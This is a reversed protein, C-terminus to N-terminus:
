LLSLLLGSGIGVLLLVAAVLAVITWAPTGKHIEFVVRAREGRDTEITVVAASVQHPVDARDIQVEIEQERLAPDLRTPHIGLWPENGSVTGGMRGDGGNRISITAVTIGRSLRIRRVPDGEIELRTIEGLPTEGDAVDPSPDPYRERVPPATASLDPRQARTRAPPGTRAAAGDYTRRAVENSLVKRALDLRTRMFAAEHPPAGDLEATKRQWAATIDDDTAGHTVGLLGYLDLADPPPPPTPTGGPTEIAIGVERGVRYLVERFTRESVGLETANRRLYDEQDANLSGSALVGRITMEIVPLHVSEARRQADVMYSPVDSLVENLSTFHKILFLAERKYKPNGQMGQMFRRRAKLKAQADDSGASEDLGLYALLHPSGVLQSFEAALELDRSEM